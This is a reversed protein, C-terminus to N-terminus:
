VDLKKMASQLSVYDDRNLWENKLQHYLSQAEEKTLTVVNNFEELTLTFEM